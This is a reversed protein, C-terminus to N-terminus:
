PSRGGIERMLEKLTVSPCRLKSASAEKLALLGMGSLGQPIGMYVKVRKYAELGKPEKRPLMSRIMRRLYTDPRRPHRPAREQSALTRTRLKERLRAVARAKTGSIVAEEANVIIVERGRMAEKAAYSALRGCISGAADLYIREESGGRM